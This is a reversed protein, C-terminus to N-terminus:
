KLVLSAGNDVTRCAVTGGLESEMAAAKDGKEGAVIEKGKGLTRSLLWSVVGSGHKVEDHTACWYKAKTARVVDKGNKEGLNLQAGALRIDHEGHLLALTTINKNKSLPLCASAPLGHPTYIVAEGSGSALEPERSEVGPNPVPFNTYKEPSTGPRPWTLLVGEHYGIMSKEPAMLRTVKCWAAWELNAREELGPRWKRWDEEEEPSPTLEIPIVTDFHGWSHLLDIAKGKPAFIPISPQASRLTEEHMHDTFEHSTIIGDILSELCGDDLTSGDLTSADTGTSDVKTMDPGPVKAEDFSDKHPAKESKNELGEISAILDEVEELTQYRSEEKHWQRSFWGHVDEQTGKFWPDLVLHLYKNGERHETGFPVPVSVLWSTDANLHTLIPRRREEIGLKGAKIDEVDSAIQAALLQSAALQLGHETM